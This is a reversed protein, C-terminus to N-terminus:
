EYALAERVVLRAARLAPAASAALAIAFVLALWIAAAALSITFPLTAGHFARGALGLLRTLPLSVLVALVWSAAGIFLGEGAIITVVTAPTAGIAKMVGIERTRELVNITMMAALGLGGVLVLVLSAAIAMTAPIEIHGVLAIYLRDLPMSRGVGIGAADLAREVAQIVRGREEANRGSTILRIARGSEALGTARAYGDASVYAGGGGTEQVIGVLRWPTPRGDVSLLVPDGIRAGPLERLIRSSLVVADIDGAALWRGAIVPFRIMATQPPVGFLAFSGHGRDPYTRMVDIGARHALATLQYGWLEFVQVGEVARLVGAIRSPAVPQNLLLEAHDPRDTKIREAIAYWGARANLATMFVGGGAALMALALVLRGRRRFTNRIALMAPLGVGGLRTMARDLRGPGRAASAGFSGLAERVTIRSARVITPLAVLLPVLMGAGIVIAYAHLPIAASTVTFNMTDAIAGALRRAALIGPPLGAALALVGLALMLVAYMGALQGNRAGIAKMVGIERVQRALISALVAAVIIAALVLCLVSLIAYNRLGARVLVEHPHQGPPPVKITRIEAGQARLASALELARADIAGIDPPNGALRVRLEDLVPPEGLDGLTDRTIYGYGTQEQWAPALTTDHVIGAIPVARTAGRPMQVTLAGGEGQQLFDLARREVLMSGRPPPWAGSERTFTNLRMANFDEVVFLLMRMWEDGVKARAEIVARAEAAAIGPFGRAFALAAPTVAGIEITAHAPNTRLYNLPMERNAIGLAGFMATVSFVGIAVAGLLALARGRYGAFDRIMKRRRTGISM